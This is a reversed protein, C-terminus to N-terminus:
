DFFLFLIIILTSYRPISKSTVSFSEVRRQESRSIISQTMIENRLM